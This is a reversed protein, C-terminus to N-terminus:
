SPLIGQQRCHAVLAAMGEALQTAPTWLGLSLLPASNASWDPHSMYGARDLSLDPLRGSLSAAASDVLAAIRMMRPSVEIARVPRGVAAGIAEAMEAARYGGAGDDIEFIQGHSRAPGTLDEALAVLAAGLDPGYLMSAYSGKPVPLLGRRALNLLKPFERDGPGYVAPPRVAAVPGSREMAIDEGRRKSWGYDSLAPERASLSSVHVLPLEGLLSCLLATGEVNSAIFGERDKARTAGAIHIAAEAGDLMQTLAQQDSLSGLIWEVGELPPQPSRALARVQHGRRVAEDITHRGVFGTGGTIALVLAM